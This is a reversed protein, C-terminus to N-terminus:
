ALGGSGDLALDPIAGGDIWQAYGDIGCPSLWAADLDKGNRRLIRVRGADIRQYRSESRYADIMWRLRKDSEPADVVEPPCDDVLAWDAFMEDGLRTLETRLEEASAFERDRLKVLQDFRLFALWAIKAEEQSFAGGAPYDKLAPYDRLIAYVTARDVFDQAAPVLSSVKEEFSPPLVFIAADFRQSRQIAPDVQGISNTNVFFILRKADWLHALRPLMTTTFFRELMDTAESRHRILEDIEDFLVVAGDVEQLKRFIEDARASVFDTGRDLFDAPTIEIFRWNLEAAVSKAFKTKGTGPPGFL